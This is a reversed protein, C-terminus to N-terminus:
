HLKDELEAIPDYWGRELVSTQIQKDIGFIIALGVLIFILGLSRMFWGDPNSVKALRNALPQGALSILLLIAALGVAYAILYIIGEAFPRQLIIAVILAYTPSCSNFVPGLSAGILIDQAIGKKRYSKTLAKDSRISLKFKTSVATWLSPFLFNSGLLIIITGSIIGWVVTPVGLLLSTTKLLLTFIVVSAALSGTIILPRYWTREGASAISGGVIVPLLPLICPAM